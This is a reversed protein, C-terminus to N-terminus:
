KKVGKVLDGHYVFERFHGPYVIVGRPISLLRPKSIQEWQKRSGGPAHLEIEYNEMLSDGSFFCSRDLLIGISGPSHGPIEFLKLDHGQWMITMENEFTEDAYCTYQRDYEPFANVEVWTQM